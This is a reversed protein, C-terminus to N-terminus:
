SPVLVSAVIGSLFIGDWTGAGGISAMPAGIVRIYRLNLLDAGVLTGISGAVYAVVPAFAEQSFVPPFLTAAIAGALPPLFFPVVIGEGKVIWAVRNVVVACAAVSLVASPWCAPCRAMLLGSVVVPVVCGGLNVALVTRRGPEVRVRHRFGFLLRVAATHTAETVYTRVPINVASGLLSAGIIAVVHWPAFGLREFGFTLVRLFMVFLLALGLLAALVWVPFPTAVGPVTYASSSGNRIHM